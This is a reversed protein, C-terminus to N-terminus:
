FLGVCFLQLIISLPMFVGKLVRSTHTHIYACGTGRHFNKDINKGSVM